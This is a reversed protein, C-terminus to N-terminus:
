FKFSIKLEKKLDYVNCLYEKKIFNNIVSQFLALWIVRFKVFRGNEFTVQQLIYKIGTEM